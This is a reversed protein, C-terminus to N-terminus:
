RPLTPAVIRYAKLGLSLRERDETLLPDLGTLDRVRQLRYAVTHRHAYICRATANMNCDSVLYAELTSRLETQYQEDYSVVAAVTDEYFSRVEEPHSALAHLLLRYVGSGMGGNLHDALREDRSVVKLVLEAEQFAKQLDRPDEYFSSMGTPGYSRLRKVLGHAATLTVDIADEVDDAPLVAYVRGESFGSMAGPFEATVLAMAQRPRRSRAETVVVLAGGGLQCGLQAARRVVDDGEASGRRLEEILGAGLRSAEHERAGELALTTLTALAAVHLLEAAGGPAPEAGALMAVMGVPEGASTIPMVTEVGAPPESSGVPRATFLHELERLRDGAEAPSIVAAGRAPAVIAVPRGVRNATLEAVRALGDGSLAAEVMEQHATRVDDVLTTARRKPKAAVAGREDPSLHYLNTEMPEPLEYGREIGELGAHLKGAFTLDPNCAPDPCRLEARTAQEKGPHYVPV